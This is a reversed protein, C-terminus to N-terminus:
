TNPTAVLQTYGLQHQIEDLLAPALDMTQCNVGLDSLQTVKLDKYGCPNIYSFPTLDMRVNLSLGHYTYGKKVRLGLSAIKKQNIYVGPAEKKATAILGYQKLVNIVTNELLDVLARVGIGLRQLDFLVYMIIQGPAHYTVQGGRDSQIVHIQQANLIHESKGGVGQTFVAPHEKMALWTKQYDQLGLQRVLLINDLM